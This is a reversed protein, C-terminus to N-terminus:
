SGPDRRWRSMTVGYRQRFLRKLHASSKWGCRPAISDILQRPDALLREVEALRRDLIAEGVTKGYADRFHTEVTRRSLGLDKSLKGITLGDVACADILDAVKQAITTHPRPRVSSARRVLAKPPVTLVEGAGKRAFLRDLAEVAVTGARHFDQAISSVKPAAHECFLEDNDVSVLTFDKPCALGLRESCRLLTAASADNAAFLAFPRRLRAIDDARLLVRFPVKARQLRKRFRRARLKSWVKHPALSFFAADAQASALLEDAALDAIAQADSRVTTGGRPTPLDTDLFVVPRKRLPRTDVPESLRGGEFIVGDPNLTRVIDAINWATWGFEAESVTWGRSKAAAQVGQLKVACFRNIAHTLFLISKVTAACYIM